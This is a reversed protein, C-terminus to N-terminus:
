NQSDDGSTLFSQMIQPQYRPPQGAIGIMNDITKPGELGFLGWPKGRNAPIVNWAIGQRSIRSLYDSVAAVRQQDLSDDFSTQLLITSSLNTRRSALYQLRSEGAPNLQAPEKEDFYHLWITSELNQGNLVQQRLPAYVRRQSERTYQQPWCHDPHLQEKDFQHWKQKLTRILPPKKPKCSQCDGSACAEGTEVPETAVDVDPPVTESEPVGLESTPVPEIPPNAPTDDALLQGTVLGLSGLLMALRSARLIYGHM